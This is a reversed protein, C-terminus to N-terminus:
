KGYVEQRSSPNLRPLDQARNEKRHSLYTKRAANLATALKAPDFAVAMNNKERGFQQRAFQDYHAALDSMSVARSLDAVSLDPSLRKLWRYLDRNISAAEGSRLSHQLKRFAHTESVMWAAHWRRAVRRAKPLLWLALGMVVM